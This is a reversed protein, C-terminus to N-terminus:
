QQRSVAEQKRRALALVIVVILVVNVAIATYGGEVGFETSYAWSDSLATSKLISMASPNGSNPLGFIFDQTFNWATHMGAPLYISGTYYYALAYAIGITIITIVSIWTIGDNLLHIASFFVASIVAAAWTPVVEAMKGFVMGRSELEETTSQIFVAIFAFILLGINFDTNGEITIDGNLKAALVCISNLLCGVALGIIFTLVAKSPKLKTIAGILHPRYEKFFYAVVFFGALFVLHGFYRLISYLAPASEELSAILAIYTFKRIFYAVWHMGFLLLFIGLVEAILEKKADNKM